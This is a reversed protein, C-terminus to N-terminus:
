RIANERNGLEMGKLQGVATVDAFPARQAGNTTNRPMATPATEGATTNQVKLLSGAGLLLNSYKTCPLMETSLNAEKAVVLLVELHEKFTTMTFDKSIESSFLRLAKFMKKREEGDLDNSALMYFKEKKKELEHLRCLVHWLAYVDHHSSISEGGKCQPRDGDTPSESYNPPFKTSGEPGGFDHDIPISPGDGNSFVLNLGRVDGQVYGAKHLEEFWGVIEIAQELSQCLHSGEYYPVAIVEIKGRREDDRFLTSVIMSPSAVDGFELVNGDNHGDVVTVVPITSEKLADYKHYLQPSRPTERVRNDYARFVFSKKVCNPGLYTWNDTVSAPIESLHLIAKVFAGYCSDLESFHAEKRYLLAVRFDNSNGKREASFIAIRGKRQNRDFVVVSFLLTNHNGVLLETKEGADTKWVPENRQYLATLYAFAQQIKHWFLKDLNANIADKETLKKTIGVEVFALLRRELGITVDLRSPKNLSSAGYGPSNINGEDLCTFKSTNVTELHEKLLTTMEKTIETEGENKQSDAANQLLGKPPNSWFRSFVIDEKGPFLQSLFKEDFQDVDNTGEDQTSKLNENNPKVNFGLFEVFTTRSMLISRLHKNLLRRGGEVTTTSPSDVSDAYSAHNSSEAADEDQRQQKSKLSTATAGATEGIARKSAGRPPPMGPNDGAM